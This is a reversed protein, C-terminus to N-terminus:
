YSLYECWSYAHQFFRFTCALCCTSHDPGPPGSAVRAGIQFVQGFYRQAPRTARRMAGKLFNKPYRQLGLEFDTICNADAWRKAGGDWGLASRAMCLGCRSAQVCRSPLIVVIFPLLIKRALFKLLDKLVNHFTCQTNHMTSRM